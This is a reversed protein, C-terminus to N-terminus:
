VPDRDRSPRTRVYRDDLWCRLDVGLLDSLREVDSRYFSVLFERDSAPMKLTSRDRFLTFDLRRRLAPPFRRAIAARGGDPPLLCNVLHSRPVRATMHRTGIDPQFEADVGLFSFVERFLGFPDTMFHDYLRVMVRERGFLALYREVQNSYFGFELFPYLEGIRRGSTRLAAEIHERFTIPTRSVSLTHVHQAFARDIPNRLIMLIKADPCRARINSPATPSWLYMPTAEGAAIEDKVRDFLRLYDKWDAVPGSTFGETRPGDLYTRLESQWRRIRPQFEPAFNEIRVEDAFFNPEKVPSMYIQPHQALYNYLSTTGAKAAGVLFFNPLM